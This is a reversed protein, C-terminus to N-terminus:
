TKIKTSSTASIHIIWINLLSIYISPCNATFRCYIIRKSISPFIIKLIEASLLDRATRSNLLFKVVYGLYEKHRADAETILLSRWVHELKHRMSAKNYNLWQNRYVSLTRSLRGLIWLVPVLYVVIVTIKEKYYHYINCSLRLLLFPRHVVLWNSWNCRRRRIWKYQCNAERNETEEPMIKQRM